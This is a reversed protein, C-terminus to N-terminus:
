EAKSFFPALSYLAENMYLSITIGTHKFVLVLLEFYTLVINKISLSMFYLVPLSM